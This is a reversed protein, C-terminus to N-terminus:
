LIYLILVTTKYQLKNPKIRLINFYLVLKHEAKTYSCNYVAYMYTPIIYM